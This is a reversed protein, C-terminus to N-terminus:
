EYISYKCRLRASSDCASASDAAAAQRTHLHDVQAPGLLAHVAAIRRHRRLDRAVRRGNPARVAACHALLVLLRARLRGPLAVEPHRLELVVQVEEDLEGFLLDEVIM